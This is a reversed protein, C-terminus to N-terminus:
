VLTLIASAGGPGVLSEGWILQAIKIYPQELPPIEEAPTVVPAAPVGLVPESLAPEGMLDAVDYGEWWAKLRTKFPPKATPPVSSELAAGL